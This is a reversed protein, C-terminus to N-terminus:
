AINLWLHSTVTGKWVRVCASGVSVRSFIYTAIPCGVFHSDAALSPTYTVATENILAIRHDDVFLIYVDMCILM